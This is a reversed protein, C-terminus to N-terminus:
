AGSRLEPNATRTARTLPTLILHIQLQGPLEFWLLVSQHPVGVETWEVALAFSDFLIQPSDAFQREQEQAPLFGQLRLPAQGGRALM